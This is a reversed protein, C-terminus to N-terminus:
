NRIVPSSGGSCRIDRGGGTLTFGELLSGATEGNRFVFDAGAFRGADEYVDDANPESFVNEMALKWTADDFGQCEYCNIIRVGNIGPIHLNHALDALLHDAEVRFNEKKEVFVRRIRNPM